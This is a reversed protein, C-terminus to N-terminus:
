YILTPQLHKAPQDVPASVSQLNCEAQEAYSQVKM